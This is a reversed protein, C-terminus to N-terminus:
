SIALILTPYGLNIVASDLPSSCAFQARSTPLNVRKFAAPLALPAPATRITGAGTGADPLCQWPSNKRASEQEREQERESARESM